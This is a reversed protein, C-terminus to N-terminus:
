FNWLQVLLKKILEIVKVKRRINNNHSEEDPANIHIYVLENHMLHNQADKLKEKFNTDRYGTAGITRKVAMRAAIAIGRTFDLGSVIAGDIGFKRHFSPLIPLSSPSWLFIMDAHTGLKNNIKKFQEISDLMIGNLFFAEKQSRDSSGKLLLKNISKGENMHPESALIENANFKVKRLVLLNRYGQGPYIEVNSDTIELNEIIKKADEYSINGANFDKLKKGNLSVLNCRFVVDDEDLYIDRALAEFSARGNPYYRLPNYGLIGLNAVISCVPLGFYSTQILGAKGYKALYDIKPKEAVELPTKNGLGELPLDVAGDMLIIVYKLPRFINEAIRLDNFNDIEAWRAKDGVDFIYIPYEKLHKAIVLDYYISVNGKQVDSDLWESFLKGYRSTIKLVGTSKFFNSKYENLKGRVIKLDIIRGEKNTIAM